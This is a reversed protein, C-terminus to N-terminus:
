RSTILYPRGDPTTFNKTEQMPEGTVIPPETQDILKVGCYSGAVCCLAAGDLWHNERSDAVWKTVEGKGTVFTRERHESVLHKLLTNLQKDTGRPQYISFRGPKPLGTNPTGEEYLPTSIRAHLWTKWYDANIHVLFLQRAPHWAIHFEEGIVKVEPSLKKPKTYPTTKWQGVGHGLTPLFLVERPRAKMWNCVLETEYRSDVLAVEPRIHTGQTNLWGHMAIQEFADLAKVFAAEIGTKATQMEILGVEVTHPSGDPAFAMAYWHSKWKGMDMALVLTPHSAPIVGREFRDSECSEVAKITLRESEFDPSKYPLCWVFQMQEKEAVEINPARIANWEEAAIQATNTMLNHVASARFGLVTTPPHDGHIMGTSDITQGAHILKAARNAECREDETWAEGCEPCHFASEKRAEREDAADQYGLFDERGPLVFERCHPCPLVLRSQTGATYRSWIHGEEVTVTCEKYIRKRDAFARARAEIQKIKSTEQSTAASTDLGDAETIVIVRATFSARAKDNGGGSMFRLTAGNRFKIATPNNAGKSARGGSPLLERYRTQEIVPLFDERWKDGATDMSPLGCVVTEGVEFLHYLTPIVFGVFSKGGQTIATLAHEIYLGSDIADLWHGQWPIFDGSFHEDPNPSTPPSIIEQEAFQRMTRLVPTRSARFFQKFENQLTQISGLPSAVVM